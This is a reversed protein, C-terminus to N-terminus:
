RCCGGVGEVVAGNPRLSGEGRGKKWGSEWRIMM